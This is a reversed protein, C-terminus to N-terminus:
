KVVQKKSGDIAPEILKYVVTEAQKRAQYTNTATLYHYFGVKLGNAKANKYNSELYPDKFTTGESAKIYVIQIGANKM